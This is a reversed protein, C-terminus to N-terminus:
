GRQSGATCRAADEVLRMAFATVQSTTAEVSKDCNTASHPSFLCFSGPPPYMIQRVHNPTILRCKCKQSADASKVQMQVAAGQRILRHFGGVIPYLRRNCPMMARTRSGRFEPSANRISFRCPRISSSSSYLWVLGREGNKLLVSIYMTCCSITMKRGM